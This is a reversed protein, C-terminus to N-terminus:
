NRAYNLSRDGKPAYIDFSKIKEEIQTFNPPLLHKYNSLSNRIIIYDCSLNNFLVSFDDAKTMGLYFWHYNINDSRWVLRQAENANIAITLEDQKKSSENDLWEVLQIRDKNILPQLKLYNLIGYINICAGIYGIIFIGCLLINTTRKSRKSLYVFSLFILFVVPIAHRRHFFWKSIYNNHLYHILFFNLISFLLTYLLALNNNNFNVFKKLLFKCYQKDFGLAIISLPILYIFVQFIKYYGQKSKFDFAVFFGSARDIIFDLFSLDKISFDPTSLLDNTKVSFYTFDFWAPAKAFSTVYIWHPMMVVIISIASIICFLLYRFRNNSFIIAYAYVIAMSLAFILFQVRCLILIGMWIGIEIANLFNTNTFLTKTRTLFVFLLTFSLAETYPLSTFYIYSTNIGLILVLFHGANINKMVSFLPGPWMTNSWRYAFILSLFYFITPLWIAMIKLPLLKSAYGLVIPWLPYIATPHPFYEYGKHYLSARTKLGFGDRVHKAIDFYYGGDINFDNFDNM